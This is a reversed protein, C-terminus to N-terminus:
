CIYDKKLPIPLLYETMQLSVQRGPAKKRWKKNQWHSIEGWLRSLSISIHLYLLQNLDFKTFASFFFFTQKYVEPKIRCGFSVLFWSCTFKPNTKYLQSSDLSMPMSCRQGQPRLLARGPVAEAWGPSEQPNQSCPQVGTFGGPWMELREPCSSFPARCELRAVSCRHAQEPVEAMSGHCATLWGWLWAGQQGMPQGVGNVMNPWLELLKEMRQVRM